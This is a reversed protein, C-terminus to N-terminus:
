GAPPEKAQADLLKQIADICDQVGENYSHAPYTSLEAKCAALADSLAKYAPDLGPLVSFSGAKYARERWGWWGDQVSKDNYFWMGYEHHYVGSFDKARGAWWAEFWAREEAESRSRRTVAM